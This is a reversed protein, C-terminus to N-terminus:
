RPWPMFNTMAPAPAMPAYMPAFSCWAPRSIV